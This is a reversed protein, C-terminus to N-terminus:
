GRPRSQTDDFGVNCQTDRFLLHFRREECEATYVSLSDPRRKIKDHSKRQYESTKEKSEHPLVM